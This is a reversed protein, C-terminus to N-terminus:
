IRIKNNLYKDLKGTLVLLGTPIANLLGEHKYNKGVIIESILALKKFVYFLEYEDAKIYEFPSCLYTQCM